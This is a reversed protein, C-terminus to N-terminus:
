MDEVKSSDETDEHELPSNARAPSMNNDVWMTKIHHGPVMALGLLRPEMDADPETDPDSTFENCSGIIVNGARVNM